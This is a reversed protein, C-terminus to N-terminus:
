PIKVATNPKSITSKGSKLWRSSMTQGDLELWSLALKKTAQQRVRLQPFAPPFHLITCPVETSQSLLQHQGVGLQECLSNITTYTNRPLSAVKTLSITLALLVHTRPAASIGIM